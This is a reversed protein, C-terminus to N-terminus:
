KYTFTYGYASVGRGKLVNRINGINTINLIRGCDKASTYEGVLEMAPYTYAKIPISFKDKTAMGAKISNNKDWFGVGKEKQSTHWKKIRQTREDITESIFEIKAPRKTKTYAKKCYAYSKYYPVKDVSYGYQKQLEIERNSATYICNHEEIIEYSNVKQAYKIRVKPNKTCGIKKGKIHYIYYM